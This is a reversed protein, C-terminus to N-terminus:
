RSQSKDIAGPRAAVASPLSQQWTRTSSIRRATYQSLDYDHSQM